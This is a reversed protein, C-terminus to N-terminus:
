RRDRDERILDVGLPQGRVPKPHERRMAEFVEAPSKWGQRLVPNGRRDYGVVQARDGPPADARDLAQELIAMLEGQLSRHHRAARQRLAEAWSEPVDKISLNPM